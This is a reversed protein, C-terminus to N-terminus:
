RQAKVPTLIIREVLEALNQVMINQPQYQVLPMGYQVAVSLAETAPPAVGAIPHDLRNEMERLSLLMTGQRNVVIVNIVSSSIGWNDLQRLRQAASAVSTIEPEALVFVTTSTKVITENAATARPPLDVVVYDASPILQSLVAGMCGADLEGYEDPRQPGFLVRVDFATTYLHSAVLPEAIAPPEYTMLGSLNKEPNTKLQVALTGYDPRIEALIVSKRKEALLAAVNTAVTTTGVGGKAGIFAM